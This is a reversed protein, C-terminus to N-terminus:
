EEDQGGKESDGDKIGDIEPQSLKSARAKSIARIKEDSLSPPQNVPRLPNSIMKLM